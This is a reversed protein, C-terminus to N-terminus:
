VKKQKSSLVAYLTTEKDFLHLFKELKKWSCTFMKIAIMHMYRYM